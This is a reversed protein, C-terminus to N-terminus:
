IWDLTVKINEHYSTLRSYLKDIQNMKWRGYTDDVYRKCFFPKSSAVIDEELQCLYIDSFISIPGWMACGDIQKILRNNASFICEKTLKTLLNQFISKKCFPKLQKEAYIKYLIYDITEEVHISTFLSKEVYSVGEYNDDSPTSKLLNPFSWTDRITYKNKALPGLYKAGVKSAKYVYM